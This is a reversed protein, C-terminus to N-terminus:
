RSRLAAEGAQRMATVPAALGTMLEVQRAAQHLLLEFGTVCVRGAAEAAAVFPTVAPDYVVDFVTASAAVSAALRPQAAAPVTSVVVDAAPVQDPEFPRVALEVDLRVALDRLADAASPTRAVVVLSSAGLGALAFLASAATAGAGVIVGDTVATLGAERLAAAVGVVDTNYASWGGAPRRVLTNVAGVTLGADDVTSSHALVAVKLPMTVSLGRWDPGLRSLFADLTRATVEHAEYTWDLGLARYAARHLGPSLSHSIPSGIVGCRTLGLADGGPFGGTADASM